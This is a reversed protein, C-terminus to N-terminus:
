QDLHRFDVPGAEKGTTPAKLTSEDGGGRTHMDFHGLMSAMQDPNFMPAGGITPKELLTNPEDNEVEMRNREELDSLDAVSSNLSNAVSPSPSQDAWVYLARKWARVQCDWSRRSFDIYKNPTKPHIGRKREHKPVQTIYDVYIDKEKAKNIEKDRRALVAEDTCWGHKPREWDDRPNPSNTMSDNFRSPTSTMSGAFSGRSECRSPTHHRAAKNPIQKTRTGNPTSITSDNSMRRKRSRTAEAPAKAPSSHDVATNQKKLRESRRNLLLSTADMSKAFKPETKAIRKPTVPKRKTSKEAENAEEISLWANSSEGRAPSAPTTTQETVLLDDTNPVTGSSSPVDNSDEDLEVWSRDKTKELISFDLKRAKKPSGPHKAVPKSIPSKTGVGWPDKPNRKRPTTAKRPSPPAM